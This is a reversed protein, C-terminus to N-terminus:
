PAISVNTVVGEVKIVDALMPGELFLWFESRNINQAGILQAMNPLDPRTFFDTGPTSFLGWAFGDISVTGFNQTGFLPAFEGVAATRGAMFGFIDNNSMSTVGTEDVLESPVDNLVMGQAGWPQNRVGYRQCHDFDACFANDAEVFLGIKSTAANAFVLPLNLQARNSGLVLEVANIAQQYGAINASAATPPQGTLYSITGSVPVQGQAAAPGFFESLLAGLTGGHPAVVKNPDYSLAAEFTFRVPQSQATSTLLLALFWGLLTIRM